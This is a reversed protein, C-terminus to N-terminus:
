ENSQLELTADDSQAKRRRRSYLDAFYVSLALGILAMQLAREKTFPENLLSVGVFLNILPIFNLLVAVATYPITNVARVFLVLPPMAVLGACIFLLAQSPSSSLFTSSTGLYVFAYGVAVPALICTEVFFGSISEVQVLKRMLGYISFSGGILLAVWPVVEKVYLDIGLAALACLIALKQRASLSEGFMCVGLAVNIIPTLFLGISAEVVKGVQVAWISLGWNVALFITATGLVLLTRPSGVIRVVNRWLGLVIILAGSSIASWIVRHALIEKPDVDGFLSWFLPFFGWIVAATTAFLYGRRSTTSM